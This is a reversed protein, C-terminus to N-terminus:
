PAVLTAVAIKRPGSPETWNVRVRIRKMGVPITADLTNDSIWWERDYSGDIPNAPDPYPNPSVILTGFTQGRLAELQQEALLTARTIRGGTIVNQFATPFLGAVGLLAVALIVAALLIEVLSMGRNSRLLERLLRRPM